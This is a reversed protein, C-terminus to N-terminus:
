TMIEPQSICGWTWSSTSGLTERERQGGWGQACASAQERFIILYYFIFIVVIGNHNKSFECNNKLIM